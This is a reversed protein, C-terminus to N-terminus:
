ASKSAGVYVNGSEVLAEVLEGLLRVPYRKVQDLGTDQYEEVEARHRECCALVLPVPEWSAKRVQWGLVVWEPAEPCGNIPEM